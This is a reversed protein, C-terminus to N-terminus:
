EHNGGAWAQVHQIFKDHLKWTYTTMCSGTGTQSEICFGSVTVEAAETVGKQVRGLIRLHTLQM